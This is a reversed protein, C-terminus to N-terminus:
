NLDKGFISADIFTDNNEFSYYKLKIWPQAIQNLNFIITFSTQQDFSPMAPINLPTYDVNDNSVNIELRNQPDGLVATSYKFQISINDLNTINTPNSEVYGHSGVTVNDFLKYTPLTKKAGM